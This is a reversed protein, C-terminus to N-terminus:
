DLHRLAPWVRSWGGIPGRCVGVPEGQEETDVDLANDLHTAVTCSAFLATAEHWQGGVVVATTADAPPRAQDYLANQASYVAPLGYRAGYRDVAGAEGYNSALVVTRHREASPVTAWASAIQRVYTPWGISDRAVQNTGAIPTVHLMDVPVLPLALVMSVAANVAVGAVLLRRRGRGSAWECAPVCGVAWLVALLGFPYYFQAGMLCVLVLLVPFAVAVFRMSRWQPRRWLAVWGAVWVPVLPPGLMLLLFPWMAVRVEGANNAALARGMSLQPWSHTVQYVLNPAGVILALAVGALVWRSLLRRPATAALGAALAVLLVAVLLKNYMSLGVVAGAALWWRPQARLVARAIFLVVAPWVPLDITSTLLAHGMILPISAFAYGWASLAQAARGGGFERTVLAVVVVSVMTALTAPVREAWVADGLLGTFGRALLPTLPPQDVYGWAPRLLRFYLEDRHYGYGGSAATLLVGLTLAAAYVPGRALPPRTVDTAARPLDPLTELM